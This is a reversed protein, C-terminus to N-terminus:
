LTRHTVLLNNYIWDDVFSDIRQFRKKYDYVHYGFPKLFQIVTNLGIGRDKYTGGYEIQIFHVSKNSLHNAMGVLVDYEFGETDVKAFDITETITDDITVIELSVEDVEQGKYFERNVFGSGSQIKPMFYFQKFENKAGVGKNIAIINDNRQLARFPEPHPEFCYIKKQSNIEKSWEGKHAGIDLLVGNGFYQSATQYYTLEKSDINGM